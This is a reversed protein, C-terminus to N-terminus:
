KINVKKEIRALRKRDEVIMERLELVDLATVDGFEENLHEQLVRWTTWLKANRAKSRTFIAGPKGAKILEAHVTWLEDRFVRRDKGAMDAASNVAVFGRPRM